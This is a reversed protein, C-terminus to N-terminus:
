QLKHMRNSISQSLGGILRGVEAAMELLREAANKRLYGLDKSLYPQTELERINSPVSVAARRLELTLYYREEVPFSSTESYVTITLDYAKEWAILDRSDRIQLNHEGEDGESDFPM